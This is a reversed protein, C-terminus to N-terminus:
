SRGVSLNFSLWGSLQNMTRKSVSLTLPKGPRFMISSQGVSDSMLGEERKKSIPDGGLISDAEVIQSRILDSKFEDPFATFEEVTVKNLPNAGPVNFSLKGIRIFAEILAARRFADSSAGWAELDPIDTATLKAQNMTQYSNTMFVLSSEVEIVYPSEIIISVDNGMEAIIQIVRMGKLNGPALANIIAPIVVDVSQDGVSFTTATQALIEVDSEDVVRYDVSVPEIMQGADDVLPVNVAVSTNARHIKM